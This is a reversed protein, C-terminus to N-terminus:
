DGFPIIKRRQVLEGYPQTTGAPLTALWALPGAAEEPTQAEEPKFVTGMFDRTADTLTVGPCAANILAGKPLSAERVVSRAFSRTVAVQGVKSPINVWDPWGQAAATGAEVAAVYANMAVNIEDPGNTNTNFRERLPEPLSALVGFGSAVVIMRGHEALVPMFARLVRLTGHSNAEIMPRADHAVAAGPTPMYAGNQVVIDVKGHRRALETAVQHPSAPAGLDFILHGITLGEAAFATATRAGDQENRATLYVSGSPGLDAALRRVLALGIGRTSGLVIATKANSHNMNSIGKQLDFLLRAATGVTRRGM